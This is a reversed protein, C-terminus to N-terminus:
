RMFLATLRRTTFILGGVVMAAFYLVHWLLGLQLNGLMLGRILEVAHWLPFCQIIAQAWEPYVSLPTFTGSFLFMPLIFFQVRNMQQFSKLYSTIGMGIAAFGFAILVSAAVAAIAWWSHVLGFSTVVIMFGIAYVLGRLLAWAIEGLAVDLPGMSTSLMTNYLKAFHMKFFVNMTSDYVAGNMASTALLAPAIYAAYTVENGLGDTVNGVIAGIGVGFSLLYLLPEFFGSFVAVWNSSRLALLNRQMTSTPRGAYISAALKGRRRESIAVASVYAANVLSM